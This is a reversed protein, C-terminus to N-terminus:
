GRHLRNNQVPPLNLVIVDEADVGREYLMGMLDGYRIGKCSALLAMRCGCCRGDAGINAGRAHCVKCQNKKAM